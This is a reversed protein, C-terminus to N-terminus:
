KKKISRRVSSKKQGSKKETLLDRGKFNSGWNDKGRELNEYRARPASSLKSFTLQAIEMGPRLIIPVNNLNCLEFTIHLFHGPNILGATNHIMLGVRALSSKGGVQVLYHDSGFFEKSIGLVSVGPHLVFEGGDEVVVERTKAYLKRAPDIVHTLHEDNVVFKNGLLIDYSAPQLRKEDFPDLTIEGHQVATLIDLDSLFM